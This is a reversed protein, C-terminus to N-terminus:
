RAGGKRGLIQGSLLTQGVAAEYAKAYERKQVRCTFYIEPLCLMGSQADLEGLMAPTLFNAAQAVRAPHFDTATHSQTATNM